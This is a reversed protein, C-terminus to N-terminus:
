IAISNPSIGGFDATGMRLWQKPQPSALETAAADM